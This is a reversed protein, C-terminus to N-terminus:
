KKSFDKARTNQPKQPIKIVWVKIGDLLNSLRQTTITYINDLTNYM